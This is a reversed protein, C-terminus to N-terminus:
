EGIYWYFRWFLCRYTWEAVQANRYSFGLNGVRFLFVTPMAKRWWLRWSLHRWGIIGGINPYAIGFRWLRFQFSSM